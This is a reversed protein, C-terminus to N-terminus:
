DRIGVDYVARGPRLNQGSRFDLQVWQPLATGDTAWGSWDTTAAGDNVKEAAYGNATDTNSASAAAGKAFNVMSATNLKVQSLQPSYVLTGGTPFEIKVFRTGMPLKGLTYVRKTWAGENIPSDAYHWGQQEEWMVGDSAAYFKFNRIGPENDTAYLATLQVDTAESRYIVYEPTSGTSTRMARSSDGLAAGHATDFVLGSSHASVKTWDNM